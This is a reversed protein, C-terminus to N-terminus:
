GAVMEEREDVVHQIQRLDLGTLDLELDCREGEALGELAAAAEGERQRDPSDSTAAARIRTTSSLAFFMFSKRSRSRTFPYSVSSALEPSCATSSANSSIGSRTRISM